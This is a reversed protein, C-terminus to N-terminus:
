KKAPLHTDSPDADNIKNGLTAILVVLQNMADVVLWDGYFYYPCLNL